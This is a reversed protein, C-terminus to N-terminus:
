VCEYVYVRARACVRVRSCVCIYVAGLRGVGTFCMFVVVRQERWKKILKIQCTLDARWCSSTLRVSIKASRATDTVLSRM